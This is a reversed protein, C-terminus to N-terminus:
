RLNPPIYFETKNYNYSCSTWKTTQSYQNGLTIYCKEIGLTFCQAYNNGISNKSKPILEYKPRSIAIARTIIKM